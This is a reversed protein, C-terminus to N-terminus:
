RAVVVRLTQLNDDCLHVDVKGGAFVEKSLELGFEKFTDITEQDNDLGKKVSIRFEYTDGTKNLQVSSKQSWDDDELFKALKTAEAESVSSTCYLDCKSSPFHTGKGSGCGSILLAITALYLWPMRTPTKM